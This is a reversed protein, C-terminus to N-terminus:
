RLIYVASAIVHCASGALVFLHWIAHNFRLKRWAFFIVGLTYCLGGAVMWAVGAPPLARVMPGWAIVALWGMVIYLATSWWTDRKGRCITKLLVGGLAMTWVIGFLSWGWPGRLAVLTLPTYSGAILLYICAHDLAQLMPKRRECSTAHYLTSSLYLLILTGGFVGASITRYAEGNAILVMAVLAAIALATGIAHTAMSAMEEAHSECLPSRPRDTRLTM